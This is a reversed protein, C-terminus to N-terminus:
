QYNLVMEIGQRAQALVQNAAYAARVRGLRPLLSIRTDLHDLLEVGVHKHPGTNHNHTGTDHNHNHEHSHGLNHDHGHERADRGIFSALTTPLLLFVLQFLIIKPFSNM